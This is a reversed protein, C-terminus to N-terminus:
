VIVCVNYLLEFFIISNNLTKRHTYNYELILISRQLSVPIDLM